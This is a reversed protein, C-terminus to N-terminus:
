PALHGYLYRDHHEALDAPGDFSGRRQSLSDTQYNAHAEEPFRYRCDEILKRILGTITTGATTAEKRHFEYQDIPLEITLRKTAM